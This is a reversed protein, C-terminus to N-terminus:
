RTQAANFVDFSNDPQDETVLLEAQEDGTAIITGKTEGRRVSSESLRAAEELEMRETRESRDNEIRPCDDFQTGIGALSVDHPGLVGDTFVSKLNGFAPVKQDQWQRTRFTTLGTM